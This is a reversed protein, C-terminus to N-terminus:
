MLAHQCRSLRLSSAGSLENACSYRLSVEYGVIVAQTDLNVAPSWSATIDGDTSVTADVLEIFM